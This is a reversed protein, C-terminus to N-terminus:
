NAGVFLPNQDKLQKSIEEAYWHEFKMKLYDKAPKNVGIDM